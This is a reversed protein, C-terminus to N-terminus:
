AGLRSTRYIDSLVVRLGICELVLEGAEVAEAREPWSGESGRRLLDAGIADSRLVLVERVSPITIYTWVNSWTEARNSPSLIEVLLIPREESEPGPCTVGLDPIRFNTRSQVRPVVGPATIVRCPSSRALLHNGLLRALESQIAGHTDSAPAMARPEGDVLQWRYPGPADWVLFEEVTMSEPVKLSASM